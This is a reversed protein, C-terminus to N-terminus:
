SDQRPLQAMYPRGHHCTVNILFVFCFLVGVVGDSSVSCAPQFAASSCLYSGVHLLNFEPIMQSLKHPPPAHSSGSM